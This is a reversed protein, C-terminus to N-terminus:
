HMLRRWESPGNEPLLRWIVPQNPPPILDTGDPQNGDDDDDDGGDKCDNGAMMDSHSLQVCPGKVCNNENAAWFGLFSAGIHGPLEQGPASQSECVSM